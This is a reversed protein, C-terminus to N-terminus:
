GTMPAQAGALPDPGPDGGAAAQGLRALYHEWGQAHQEVAPVPLDLHRLRVLTGAGEAELTIEVTTSGPPLPSNEGEWGFTFVVRRPPEVAIYAGRAIDHPSIQVRYIGGPRPDLNVTSGMWLAMKQAETFYPFVTEPPAAIHISREVIASTETAM